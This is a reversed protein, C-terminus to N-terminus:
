EPLGAERLLGFIHESGEVTQAYIARGDQLRLESVTCWPMLTIWEQVAATAEDKRGLTMYSAVLYMWVYHLSLNRHLARQAWTLANEFDGLGFHAASLDAYRYFVSPDRPNLRM